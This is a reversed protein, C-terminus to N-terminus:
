NPNYDDFREIYEEFNQNMMEAYRQAFYEIIKQKEEKLKEVDDFQRVTSFVNFRAASFLLATNVNEVETEAHQQNAVNIFEDCREQFTKKAPANESM